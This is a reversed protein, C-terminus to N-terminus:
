ISYIILPYWAKKFFKKMNKAQANSCCVIMGGISSDQNIVRFENFDKDIFKGLANIYDASELVEKKNLQEDPINLNKKIEARATTNIEERKIRLTYHDAFSRDYFYTHIYDGFKLNSREKKSLLPTGTMALYIADRDILLLNKYYEGTLSYSRHAEDVFFIRQVKAKYPNKAEPIHDFFKQVNVVTLEGWSKMEHNSQLPKTLEKEFATRSSVNTTTIYHAASEATVQNLLSLRDVVYYFRAVTDKKAFYDRLIRICYFSLETKGSGQTEFWIGRKEDKDLRELTKRAAFFQPYRMIHKEKVKKDLYLMGYRLLFLLREKTSLSAAYRAM